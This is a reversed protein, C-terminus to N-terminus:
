SLGVAVSQESINVSDCDFDKSMNKRNTATRNLRMLTKYVLM